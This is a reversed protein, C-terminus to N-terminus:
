HIVEGPPAAASTQALRAEESLVVVLEVSQVEFGPVMSKIAGPELLNEALLLEDVLGKDGSLRVCQRIREDVEALGRAKCRAELVALQATEAIEIALRFRGGTVVERFWEQARADGLSLMVRLQLAGAQFVAVPYVPGNSSFFLALNTGKPVLGSELLRTVSDSLHFGVAWSQYQPRQRTQACERAFEEPSLLWGLSATFRKDDNSLDPLESPIANM